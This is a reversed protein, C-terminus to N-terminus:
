CKGWKEITERTARAHMSWKNTARIITHYRTRWIALWDLSLLFLLCVLHCERKWCRFLFFQTSSDNPNICLIHGMCVIFHFIIVCVYTQRQMQHVPWFLYIFVNVENSIHFSSFELGYEFSIMTNAGIDYEISNRNNELM